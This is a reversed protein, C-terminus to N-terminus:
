PIPTSLILFGTENEPLLTGNPSPIKTSPTLQNQYSNSDKQITYIRNQLLVLM